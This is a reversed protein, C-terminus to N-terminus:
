RGGRDKAHDDTLQPLQIHGAFAKTLTDQVRDQRMFEGIRRRAEGIQQIFAKLAEVNEPTEPLYAREFPGDGLLRSDEVPTDITRPSPLPVVVNNSNITVPQGDSNLGRKIKTVTVTINGDIVAGRRWGGATFEQTSQGRVVIEFWDAWVTPQMEPLGAQLKTEVARKLANIDTDKAVVGGPCIRDCYAHLEYGGSKNPALNVYVPVKTVQRDPNLVEFTWSLIRKGQETRLNDTRLQGPQGPSTEISAM